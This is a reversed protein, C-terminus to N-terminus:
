TASRVARRATQWAVWLKEFPHLRVRRDAIQFELRRLKALLREHLAALVLGFRQTPQERPPLYSVGTSLETAATDALKALLKRLRPSMDSETLDDAQVGFAELDDAPVYVRDELADQRVDRIIEILRIANGLHRGFRKTDPGLDDLSGHAIGCAVIQAAGSSRYCYLGLETLTRYTPRALDMYAGEVLEDLHDCLASSVSLDQVIARSIPHQPGGDRLRRLEDRWWYLKVQSVGDDDSAHISNMIEKRLAYLLQLRERERQETFLLAYDLISGPRM